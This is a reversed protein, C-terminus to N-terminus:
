NITSAIQYNSEQMAWSHHSCPTCADRFDTVNASRIYHPSTQLESQISKVLIKQSTRFCGLAPDVCTSSPSMQSSKLVAQFEWPNSHEKSFTGTYKYKWTTPFYFQYWKFLLLHKANLVWLSYFQNLKKKTINWTTEEMWGKRHRQCPDRALSSGFASHHWHEQWMLDNVSRPSCPIDLVHSSFLKGLFLITQLLILKM